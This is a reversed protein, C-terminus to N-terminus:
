PIYEGRDTQPEAPGHTRASSQPATEAREPFAAQALPELLRAGLELTRDTRRPANRGSSDWLRRRGEALM